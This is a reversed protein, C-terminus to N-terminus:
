PSNEKDTNLVAAVAIYNLVCPNMFINLSPETCSTSEMPYNAWIESSSM